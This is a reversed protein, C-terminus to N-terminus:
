EQDLHIVISGDEMEVIGEGIDTGVPNGPFSAFAQADLLEGWAAALKNEEDVKAAAVGGVTLLPVSALFKFIGRRNM